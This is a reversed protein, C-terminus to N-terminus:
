CSKDVRASRDLLQLTAVYSVLANVTHVQSIGLGELFVRAIEKQMKLAERKQGLELCTCALNHMTILTEMNKAGYKRKRVAVIAVEIKKTEELRRPKMESYTSALNNMATLTEPHEARLKEM